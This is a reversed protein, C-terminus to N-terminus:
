KRNKQYGKIKSRKPHYIATTNSHRLDEKLLVFSERMNNYNMTFIM